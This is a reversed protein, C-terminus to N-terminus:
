IQFFKVIQDSQCSFLEIGIYKIVKGSVFTSETFLGKKDSVILLLQEPNCIGWNPMCALSVFPQGFGSLVFNLSHSPRLLTQYAGVYTKSKVFSHVNGCTYLYPDLIESAASM